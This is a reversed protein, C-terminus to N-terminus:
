SDSGLVVVSIIPANFRISEDLSARTHRPLTLDPWTCSYKRVPEVLVCLAIPVILECSEEILFGPNVDVCKPDVHVFWGAKAVEGAILLLSSRCLSTPECMSLRITVLFPQQISIEEKRGVFDFITCTTETVFGSLSIKYMLSAPGLVICVVQVSSHHTFHASVTHEFSTWILPGHDDSTASENTCAAINTM